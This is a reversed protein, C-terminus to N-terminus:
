LKNFTHINKHPFINLANIKGVSSQAFKEKKKGRACFLYSIQVTAPKQDQMNIVQNSGNPKQAARIRSINNGRRVPTLFSILHTSYSSFDTWDVPGKPPFGTMTQPSQTATFREPQSIKLFLSTGQSDHERDRHQLLHINLNAASTASPSYRRRDQKM